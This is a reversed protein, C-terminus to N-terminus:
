NKIREVAGKKLTTLLINQRRLENEYDDINLGEALIVKERNFKGSSYAQTVHLDSDAQFDAAAIVFVKATDSDEVPAFEGFTKDASLLMGRQIATDSGVEINRISVVQEPGGMLEDLKVGDTVDFYKGM